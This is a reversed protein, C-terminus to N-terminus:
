LKGHLGPKSCAVQQITEQVSSNGARERVEAAERSANRRSALTGVQLADNRAGQLAEGKSKGCLWGATGAVAPLSTM